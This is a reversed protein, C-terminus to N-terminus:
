RQLQRQRVRKNVARPLLPSSEPGLIMTLADMPMAPKGRSFVPAFLSCDHAADADSLKFPVEVGAAASGTPQLVALSDGLLEWWQGVSPPKLGGVLRLAAVAPIAEDEHVGSATTASWSTPNLSATHSPLPAYMETYEYDWARLGDVYYDSM